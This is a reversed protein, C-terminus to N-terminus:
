KAVPGQSPYRGAQDPQDAPTDARPCLRTAYLDVLYSCGLDTCAEPAPNDRQSEWRIAPRRCARGFGERTRRLRTSSVSLPGAREVPDGGEKAHYRM